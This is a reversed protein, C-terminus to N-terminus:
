DPEAVAHVGIRECVVVVVVVVVLLPPAAV